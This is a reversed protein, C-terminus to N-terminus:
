SPLRWRLGPFRAFDRDLTVWECGSEIALAAFWADTILSGKADAVVCIRSFIRWHSEGPRILVCNPQSVLTECFAFAEQISSPSGFIRPHTTVRITSALVQPSIGYPSDSDVVGAVFRRCLDHDRSDTRFAHVLVNVDPLIM